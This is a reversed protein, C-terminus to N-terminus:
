TRNRYRSIHSIIQDLAPYLFGMFQLEAIPKFGGVALGLSTGIIAAEALPTDIVREPGFQAQLGDSVRFVGGLQGVDEGLLIIQRDRAMEEALALNLAEVMNLKAM